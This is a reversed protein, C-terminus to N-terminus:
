KQLALILDGLVLNKAVIINALLIYKCSHFREGVEAACSNFLCSAGTDQSAGVSLGRARDPLPLHLWAGENIQKCPNTWNSAAAM